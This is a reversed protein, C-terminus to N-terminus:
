RFSRVADLAEQTQIELSTRPAPGFQLTGGVIVFAKLVFSAIHHFDSSVRLQVKHMEPDRKFPQSQCVQVHPLLSERNPTTSVHNRIHVKVEEPILPDEVIALQLDGWKQAPLLKPELPEESVRELCDTLGCTPVFITIVAQSYLLRSIRVTQLSIMPNCISLRKVAQFESRTSRDTRPWKAVRGKGTSKGQRSSLYNSRKGAQGKGGDAWPRASREHYPQSVSSSADSKSVSKRAWSEM